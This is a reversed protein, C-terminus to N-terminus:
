RHVFAGFVAEVQFKLINVLKEGESPTIQGAGIAEFVKSTAALVQDYTGIPGTEFEISREKCRPVLRDLCLAMAHTDGALATAIVKEILQHEENELLYQRLLRSKNLSGRPRGAPNGSKGKPWRGGQTEEAVAHPYTASEEGKGSNNDHTNEADPNPVVTVGLHNILV